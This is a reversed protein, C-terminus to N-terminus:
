AALPKVVIYVGLAILLMAVARRMTRLSFQPPFRRGIWTGIFVLPTAVATLAWVESTLGGSVGVTATRWVTAVAFYSLLTARIQALVLPQRYLFWGAVPGSASFLGGFLGGGAGALMCSWRPSVRDIPTPRLMMSIGAWSIFVGLLTQLISQADGDLVNILYVGLVIAPLQGIMMSFLVTRNIEHLHGRLSLFINLGSVLSVIATLAPLSLQGFAGMTAMMIMGMAFGAVAQVYSGLLVAIALAFLTNPDANM